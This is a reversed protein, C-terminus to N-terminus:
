SYSLVGSARAPVARTSPRRLREAEGWRYLWGLWHEPHELIAPEVAAAIQQHTPSPPLLPGSWVRAQGEQMTCFLPLVPARATGALIAAAATVRVQRGLLSVPEGFRGRQPVDPLVAVVQQDRLAALAQKEGDPRQRLLPEHPDPRAFPDPAPALFRMPADLLWCPAAQGAIRLALPWCGLHATVVVLGRGAALGAAIAAHAAPVGAVDPGPAPQGARRRAYVVVDAMNGALRGILREAERPSVPSRFGTLNHRVRGRHRRWRFGFGARLALGCWPDPLARAAGAIPM